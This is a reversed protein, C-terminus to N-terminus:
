NSSRAKRRSPLCTRPHRAPIPYTLPKWRKAPGHLGRLGAPVFCRSGVISAVETATLIAAGLARPILVTRAGSGSQCWPCPHRPFRGQAQQGESLRHRTVMKSALDATIKAKPVTLKVLFPGVTLARASERVLGVGKGTRNKITLRTLLNPEERKRIRRPQARQLHGRM